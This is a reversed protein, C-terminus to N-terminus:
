GARLFYICTSWACVACACVVWVGHWKLMPSGVKEVTSTYVISGVGKFYPCRELCSVKKRGLIINTYKEVGLILVGGM